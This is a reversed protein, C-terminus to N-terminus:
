DMLNLIDKVTKLEKIDKGAITKGFEEDLLVILSLASVSDWEDLSNLVTNEKLSGEELELMEELMELKEKLEM